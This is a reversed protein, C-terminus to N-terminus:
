NVEGSVSSSKRKSEGRVEAPALVTLSLWAFGQRQSVGLFTELVIWLFRTESCLALSFGSSDPCILLVAAFGDPPSLFYISEGRSLRLSVCLCWQGGSSM